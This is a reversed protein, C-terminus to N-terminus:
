EPIQQGKGLVVIGNPSLHFGRARDEEADVGVRVGPPVVV